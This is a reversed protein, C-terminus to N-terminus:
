IFIQINQVDKDIQNIISQHTFTFKNKADEIKSYSQEREYDLERIKTRAQDIETQLARIKEESDAIKRTLEEVSKLNTGIKSEQQKQFSADFQEKEKQLVDKYHKATELLKEKTLGMTMATGFASKFATPEDINMKALNTIAQKFEVYDFGPLNAKELAKTLFDVSKEDLGHNDGFLNKM